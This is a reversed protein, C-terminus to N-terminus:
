ASLNKLNKSKWLFVDNLNDTVYYPKKIFHKEIQTNMEDFYNNYIIAVFSEVNELSKCYNAFDIPSVSYKNIRNSIHSFPKEKYFSNTLKILTKTNSLDLHAGENVESVAMNEFFYFNGIDLHHIEVVKKYYPSDTIKM